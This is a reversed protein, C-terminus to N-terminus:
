IRFAFVHHKESKGICTLHPFIFSNSVIVTGKKCEKMLKRELKEMKWPLLYIFVVDAQGLNVNWFNKWHTHVSYRFPSFWSRISSLLVLYPNIELGNAVGRKKASLFLLKGNGSGLDYVVMGKKIHAFRIMIDSVTNTSPVFPAGTIFALCLYFFFVAFLLQLILFFITLM